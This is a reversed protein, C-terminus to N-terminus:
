GSASTMRKDNLRGSEKTTSKAGKIHGGRIENELKALSGVHDQELAVILFPPQVPREGPSVPRDRLIDHDDRM